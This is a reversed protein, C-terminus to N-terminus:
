CVLLRLSDEMRLVNSRDFPTQWADETWGNSLLRTAMRETSWSAKERRLHRLDRITAIMPSGRQFITTLVELGEMLGMPRHCTAAGVMEEEVEGAGAGAMIAGVEAEAM